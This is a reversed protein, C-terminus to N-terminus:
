QPGDAKERLFVSSIRVPDQDLITKGKDLYEKPVRTMLAWMELGSKSEFRMAGAQVLIRRLETKDFGGFYAQIIEFSRFPWEQHELFKIVLREAAFQLGYERRLHREAAVFTLVSTLAATLVAVAAAIAAAVIKSDSWDVM